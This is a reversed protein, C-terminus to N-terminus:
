TLAHLTSIYIYIYIYIYICKEKQPMHLNRCSIKMLKYSRYIFLIQFFFGHEGAPLNVWVANEPLVTAVRNLYGKGLEKLYTFFKKKFTM